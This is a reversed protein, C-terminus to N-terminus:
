KSVMIDQRMKQMDKEINFFLMLLTIFLMGIGPILFVGYIFFNKVSASQTVWSGDLAPAIYGTSKLFLNFLGIAIGSSVTTIINYVSASFGDCRFGNVWEVHDLSDALIALLTYTLPLNGFSRIALGTLVVTMNIPNSLCVVSGAISLVGGGLIANRKGIKKVLPWLFLLGIGLPFQGVVNLITYTRGDSYSGLVWNSYYLLGSLFFNNTMLSIIVVGMIILWYKSSICGKLQKSLTPSQKEATTSQTEETIRERTFYYQILVGPISLVSIASLIIKWKGQDIGIYPLFLMPFVVTTIMGPILNISMSSTMALTDRQKSIRTSLAVMLTNSNNYISSVCFFLNYSATIWIVQITIGADPVTFLLVGSIALLPGSVLLWPRAKGHVYHTNDIMRGIILNTAANLIRTIIPLSVLFLGGMIPSMGLVDTYFVNLYTNGCIGSMSAVLSPGAFFGLWREANNVDDSKVHSDFLKSSLMRFHFQRAM